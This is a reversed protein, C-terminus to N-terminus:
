ASTIARFPSLYLSTCITRKLRISGSLCKVWSMIARPASRAISVSRECTCLEADSVAEEGEHSSIMAVQTAGGTDVATAFVEEEVPDDEEECATILVDLAVNATEDDVLVNGILDDIVDYRETDDPVVGM